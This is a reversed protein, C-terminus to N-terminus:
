TRKDFAAVGLERPFERSFGDPGHVSLRKAIDIVQAPEVRARMARAAAGYFRVVDEPEGIYIANETKPAFGFEPTLFIPGALPGRSEYAERSLSTDTQERVYFSTIPKGEQMDGSLFVSRGYIYGSITSPVNVIALIGRRGSRIAQAVEKMKSDWTPGEILDGEQFRAGRFPAEGGGIPENRGPNPPQQVFTARFDPNNGYELNRM